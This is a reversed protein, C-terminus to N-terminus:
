PRFARSRDSTVLEHESDAPPGDAPLARLWRAPLVFPRGGEDEWREIAARDTAAAELAHLTTTM